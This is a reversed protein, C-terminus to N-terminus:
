RPPPPCCRGSQKDGVATNSQEGREAHGAIWRKHQAYLQIPADDLEAQEHRHYTTDEEPQSRGPLRRPGVEHARQLGTSIARGALPAHYAAIHQYSGLDRQRHDHKDGSDRLAVIRHLRALQHVSYFRYGSGPDVREPTLLGLEDYHPLMRPSVQGLRAFEGINLM